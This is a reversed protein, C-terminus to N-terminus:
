GPRWYGLASVRAKPIALDKRAFSTLARTTATDCAIWVYANAPDHVLGPLEETVAAVLGQGDGTRPVPRLDHDGLRAQALSLKLVAGERGGWTDV